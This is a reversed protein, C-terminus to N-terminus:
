EPQEHEDQSENGEHLNVHYLFNFDEIKSQGFPPPQFKKLPEFAVQWSAVAEVRLQVNVKFLPEFM